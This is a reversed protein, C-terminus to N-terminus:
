FPSPQADWEDNMVVLDIRAEHKPKLMEVLEAYAAQVDPDKAWAPVARTV